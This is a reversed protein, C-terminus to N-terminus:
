QAVVRARECGVLERWATALIEDFSREIDHDLPPPDSTALIARKREACREETSRAGAGLWADYFERDLLRPFWLEGRFHRVTHPTDIFTGGPGVEEIVDLGLVEDSLEVPRLVSEVYGIIEDQLVLMDLSTAQDVGAIGLHGFIDAGAAAGLMLTAAIELGAQADPRKSDTLGVNIYVPLGYHKGMQALAVGFVAQEPGGFIMQTTRMDFAHCIGGYCVPAGPSILQVLCIGALIEANEQALTGAITCPASLGMQAMPGVSVPLDLRATEYLLDIGRFPYRLPSIPEVFAYCPPKAAAAGESGRLAILLEVLYRASARDHLWFHVPKNTHRLQQALVEVCRVAAPVNDPDAMAGVVNIHELAECFRAATAVDSLRAPRRPQGPDDVWHAEGAISNYNRRGVGFAATRSTDRGYITFGAGARGLCRDVLHEPIRARGPARDVTAGADALRSLADEHPVMVGVRWLIELSAQHIRAIQDDSLIRCDM